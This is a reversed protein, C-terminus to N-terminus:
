IRSEWQLHEAVTRLWEKKNQTTFLLGKDYNRDLGLLISQINGHSLIGRAIEVCARVDADATHANELSQDTIRQYVDGLKLSVMDGFPKVKKKRLMKSLEYTCFIRPYSGDQLQFLRYPKNTDNYFRYVESMLGLVDFIVNHGMLFSPEWKAIDARLEQIVTRILVGNELLFEHSMGHQVCFMDPKVIHNEPTIFYTKISELEHLEPLSVVTWCIQVIRCTNYNTLDFIGTGTPLGTTELDFVLATKMLIIKSAKRAIYM